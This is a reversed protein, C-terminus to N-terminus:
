SPSRFLALVGTFFQMKARGPGFPGIEFASQMGAIPLDGFRQRLIRAEVDPAGYLAQGRGACSLFLGFRPASGRASERVSKAVRELDSRAEAADLVAFACRAGVRADPGIMVGRRAPDVGRINRVVFRERGAEDPLEDALAVFVVPQSAGPTSPNALGSAAKSLADLAPQGGIRLVLGAGAEDVVQFTSLLRVAPSSEVIPISLGTLSLGVARGTEIKGNPFITVPEGGVTGAGLLCVNPAHASLPDFSQLHLADSRTFLLVTRARSARGQPVSEASDDLADFLGEAFDLPTPGVVFPTATCGGWLIGSAANDREVEGRESLVGAAPVILTPVGRWARQAVAALRTAQAAPAGSVFIVGATPADVARRVDALTRAFADGEFSTTLFSRATM